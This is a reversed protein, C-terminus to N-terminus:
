TVEKNPLENKSIKVAKILLRYEDDNGDCTFLSLNTDGISKAKNVEEPLIKEKKVVKYTYYNNDGIITIEDGIDVTKLNKFLNKRAHAFIIINGFPSDLYGSEVGFNAKNESISWTGNELKAPEILTNIDKNKIIIRLPYESYSHKEKTPQNSLDVPVIIDERANIVSTNIGIILLTVLLLTMSALVSVKYFLDAKTNNLPKQLDKSLNSLNNDIKKQKKKDIIPTNKLTKRKISKRKRRTKLTKKPKKYANKAVKGVNKSKKKTKLVKKKKPM